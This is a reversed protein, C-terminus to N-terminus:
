RPCRPSRVQWTAGLSTPHPPCPWWPLHPSSPMGCPWPRHPPSIAPLDCGFSGATMTSHFLKWQASRIPAAAGGKPSAVAPSGNCSKPSASGDDDICGGGHLASGLLAGGGSASPAPAASADDAPPAEEPPPKATADKQYRRLRSAVLATLEAGSVTRPMTLTLPLGMFKNSAGFGSPPARQVVVVLLPPEAADAAVANADVAAGVTTAEVAPVAAAVAADAVVATVVATPPQTECVFIFDNNQLKELRTGPAYIAQLKANYVEVCVLSDSNLPPCDPADVVAGLLNKVSGNLPVTVRVQTLEGDFTRLTVALKRADAVSLPVAISMFPDFTVSVRRCSPCVVTSKFFGQFLDAIRSDNRQRHRRSIEAVVHEDPEDDKAEYNEM